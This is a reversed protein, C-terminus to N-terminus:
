LLSRISGHLGLSVTSQLSVTEVAAYWSIHSRETKM